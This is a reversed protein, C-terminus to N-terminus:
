SRKADQERGHYQHLRYRASAPKGTGALEKACREVLEDPANVKDFECVRLILRRPDAEYRDAWKRITSMYSSHFMALGSVLDLPESGIKTLLPRVFETALDMLKFEDIGLDIGAKRLLMVVKETSANGAGRGIGQLTVDAVDIGKRVLHLTNAVALGLNDHGHFGIKVDSTSRVANLYHELEDPLMGGASDVLCVVDSGYARSTKAVEAFESPPLVYSKMFNASVLMGHKKAREIFPKSMSVETVNTGIRIFRAGYSACLDVDDLTAIGPICFMGFRATTLVSAAAELYEEDTAAAEGYGARSARLGVGHGIEILDFGAEELGKAILRTDSATFQFDIAYSGDRLTCELLEPKKM